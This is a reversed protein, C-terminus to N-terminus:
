LKLVCLYFRLNKLHSIFYKSNETEILIALLVYLVFKRYYFSSCIKLSGKRSRRRRRCGAAKYLPECLKPQIVVYVNECTFHWPHLVLSTVTQSPLAHASSCVCVCVCVVNHSTHWYFNAISLKVHLTTTLNQCCLFPNMVRASLNKVTKGPCNFVNGAFRFLKFNRQFMIEQCM